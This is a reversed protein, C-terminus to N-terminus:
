EKKGNVNYLDHSLKMFRFTRYWGGVSAQAHHGSSETLPAV